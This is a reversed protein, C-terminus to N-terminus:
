LPALWLCRDAYTALRVSNTETIFLEGEVREVSQSCGWENCYFYWLQSREERLQESLQILEKELSTMTIFVVIIQLEKERGTHKKKLIQSTFIQFPLLDAKDALNHSHTAHLQPIVVGFLQGRAQPSRKSYCTLQTFLTFTQTKVGSVSAKPLASCFVGGSNSSRRTKVPQRSTQHEQLDLLHKWM